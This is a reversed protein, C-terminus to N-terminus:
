TLIQDLTPFIDELDIPPGFETLSLLDNAPLDCTFSSPLSSFENSSSDNTRAFSNRDLVGAAESYYPASIQPNGEKRGNSQNTADVQNRRGKTVKKHDLSKSMTKAKKFEEETCEGHGPENGDNKRIM